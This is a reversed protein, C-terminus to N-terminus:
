KKDNEDQDEDEAPPIDLDSLISEIRSSYVASDDYYFILEPIKRVQNAIRNGLNKRVEGKAQNIKHMMRDTDDVNFFSLYVKAVGLDPSMRVQTVTIFANHFTGKQDRQFIDGLEKQILRSFKNQRKSEM